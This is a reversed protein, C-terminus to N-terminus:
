ETLITKVNGTANIAINETAIGTLTNENINNSIINTVGSWTTDGNSNQVYVGKFDISGNFPNAANSNRGFYSGSQNDNYVNDYDIIIYSSWNIGDTSVYFIKATDTFEIKVYYTANASVSVIDANSTSQYNWSKM